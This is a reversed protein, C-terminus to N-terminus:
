LFLYSWTFPTTHSILRSFCQLRTPTQAQRVGIWWLGRLELGWLCPYLFYLHLWLLITKTVFDTLRISKVTTWRRCMRCPRLVDIGLDELRTSM